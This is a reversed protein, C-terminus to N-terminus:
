RNSRRRFVAIGSGLVAVGGVLIALAPGGTSPLVGSTLGPESSSHMTADSSHETVRSSSVGTTAILTSCSSPEFVGDGGSVNIPAGTVTVRLIGDRSTIRANKGDVFTAQTGDADQLVVSAGPAATLNGAFSM